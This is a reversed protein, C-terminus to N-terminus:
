WRWFQSVNPRSQDTWPIDIDTVIVQYCHLKLYMIVNAEYKSYIMGGRKQIHEHNPLSLAVQVERDERSERVRAGTINEVNLKVYCYHIHCKM